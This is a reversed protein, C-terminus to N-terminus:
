RPPNISEKLSCAKEMIREGVSGPEVAEMSMTADDLTVAWAPEGEGMPAHYQVITKTDQGRASCDAYRLLRASRFPRVSDFRSDYQFTVLIWYTLYPGHMGVTGADLYYAVGSGSERHVLTWSNLVAQSQVALISSGLCLAALSHLNANSM